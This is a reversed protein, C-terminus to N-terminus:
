LNTGAISTKLMNFVIEFICVWVIYGLFTGIISNLNGSQVSSILMGACFVIVLTNLLEGVLTIILRWLIATTFKMHLVLPIVSLAFLAIIILIVMVQFMFQGYQSVFNESISAITIGIGYALMPTAILNIPITKIKYLLGGMYNEQEDITLGSPIKIFIKYLLGILLPRLIAMILLKILDEIFKSFAYGEYKYSFELFKAVLVMIPQFFPLSEFLEFNMMEEQGDSANKIMTFALAVVMLSIIIPIIKNLVKSM